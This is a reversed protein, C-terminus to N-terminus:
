ASPFLAVHRAPANTDVPVRTIQGSGIPRAEADMLRFWAYFNSRNQIYFTHSKNEGPDIKDIKLEATGSMIAEGAETGVANQKVARIEGDVLLSIDALPESGYNTLVCKQSMPIGAGWDIRPNDRESFFRHKRSFGFGNDWVDLVFLVLSGEGIARTPLREPVCHLYLVTQQQPPAARILEAQFSAVPAMAALAEKHHIHRPRWVGWLVLGYLALGVLLAVVWALLDGNVTVVKDSIWETAPTLLQSRTLVGQGIVSLVIMFPLVILSTLAQKRIEPWTPLHRKDSEPM